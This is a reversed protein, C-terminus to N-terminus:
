GDSSDNMEKGLEGDRFGHEYGLRFALRTYDSYKMAKIFGSPVQDGMNLPGIDAPYFERFTMRREPLANEDWEYNSSCPECVWRGPGQGSKTAHGQTGVKAIFGGKGIFEKCDACRGGTKSQSVAVIEAM